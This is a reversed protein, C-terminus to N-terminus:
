LNTCFAILVMTETIECVAGLTDGTAGGIKKRCVWSFVAVSVVLTLSLMICKTPILVTTVTIFFLASFFAAWRNNGSYFLVGLGENKRAYPLLAMMLIISTRGAVPAIILASYINTPDLAAISATKLLFVVSLAAAGMVGIRSDRMIELCKQAPRASLLGDCSDALGDLHLFGSALSLFITLLVAVVGIPLANVLFFAGLASFSGILLGTFPFYFLAGGFFSTDNEGSGPLPLITLFRIAALLSKFPHSIAPHKM